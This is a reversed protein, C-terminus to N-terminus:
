FYKRFFGLVMAGFTYDTFVDLKKVSTQVKHAWAWNDDQIEFEGYDPHQMVLLHFALSIHSQRLEDEGMDPHYGIAHSSISGDNKLYKWNYDDFLVWGGPKLLKDLLFFTSATSTWNKSGDLFVFDYLPECFNDTTQQEIKKKLFWDYTTNERVITVQDQLGTRELLQELNPELEVSRTLDVTTLHGSTEELAAAIYCSSTGHYFGLELVQKPETLVIFDYIIKGKYPTMIPVGDIENRVDDFRM